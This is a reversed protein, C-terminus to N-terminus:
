KTAPKLARAQELHMAVHQRTETLHRRVPESSAAPLLKDDIMALAEGHDKVMAAVYATEYAAGTQQGLAKRESAKKAKMAQVEPTNAPTGLAMTKTQNMTHERDMLEAYQRVPASVKKERAQRAAAIEHENVGALMAIALGDGAPAMESGREGARGAGSRDTSANAMGGSGSASTAMGGASATGTGSSSSNSDRMGSGACGALMAVSLLSIFPITTKM